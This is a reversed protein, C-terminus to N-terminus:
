ILYPEWQRATELIYGPRLGEAIQNHGPLLIDVELEALTMLSDRLQPGSAGYLDFRGIAYDSYVVDGPILVKARGDYLAIGGPSHGPVHIVKWTMGGIDLAEGGQLKRDVKFSFAGAQFGYQAQCLNRFMEMGYVAREDGSELPTAEDTHMWLEADPIEKLIEPLCGFHDLHTHTMIVRKIDSLELGLDKICQTKYQGKGMLGADVLSLDGSSPDGIVYAHADPILEDQGQIFYVGETVQKMGIEKFFKAWGYGM